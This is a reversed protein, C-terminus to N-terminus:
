LNSCYLFWSPKVNRGRSFNIFIKLMNWKHLTKTTRNLHKNYYAGAMYTNTSNKITVSWKGGAITTNEYSESINYQNWITVNAGVLATGGEDKVFGSFTCDVAWSIGNGGNYLQTIETSTLAREWIGVEDMNRFLIIVEM